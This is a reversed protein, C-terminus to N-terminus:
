GDHSQSAKMSSRCPFLILYLPIPRLAQMAKHVLPATHRMARSTWVARPALPSESGAPISTHPPPASMLDGNPLGVDGMGIPSM